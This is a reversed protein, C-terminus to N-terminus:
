ASLRPRQVLGPRIMQTAAKFHEILQSKDLKTLDAPVNIGIKNRVQLELGDLLANNIERSAALFCRDIGPDRILVNLRGAMRRVCRKRQELEINHREGDSMAASGNGNATGTRRPFRGSLDSVQQSLHNRVQDNQFQEILELRPSSNLSDNDLRFIKFGALDAVVILTKKMAEVKHKTRRSPNATQSLTACPKRLALGLASLTGIEFDINYRRETLATEVTV